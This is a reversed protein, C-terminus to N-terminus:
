NSSILHHLISPCVICSRMTSESTTSAVKVVTGASGRNRSRESVTLARLSPGINPEDDVVVIHRTGKM